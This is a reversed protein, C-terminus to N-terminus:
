LSGGTQLSFGLDEWHGSPTADTDGELRALMLAAARAGIDRRPTVVSALPPCTSRTMELGNFGALAIDAPVAIHRRQCEFLAGAALDDNCCFIADLEPWRQLMEALLESGLQVSSPATTTMLYDQTLGAAELASQWGGLRQEVRQDMRAAMLGIRQHGRTIMAETMARGAAHQDLGVAMDLPAERKEMCEVVACGSRAIMEIARKSHRSGCLVLGDVGFSLWTEILREEEEMSYGTHGILLQYGRAALPAELGRHLESFVANSLSPILLAILQSRGSALSGAQRNPMYGLEHACERVRERMVDSVKEPQNLARSVTVKTVGLRAAIDALTVRKLRPSKSPLPPM